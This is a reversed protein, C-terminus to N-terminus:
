SSPCLATLYNLVAANIGTSTLSGTYADLTEVYDVLDDSFAVAAASFADLTTRENGEGDLARVYALGTTGLATSSSDLASDAAEFAQQADEVAEAGEAVAEAFSASTPGISDCVSDEVSTSEVSSAPVALGLVFVCTLGATLIRAAKKM